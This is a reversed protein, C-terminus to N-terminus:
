INKLFDMFQKKGEEKIKCVSCVKDDTKTYFEKGCNECISRKAEFVKQPKEILTAPTADDVKIAKRICATECEKCNICLQPNFFIVGKEQDKKILIAEMACIHECVGCLNCEDTITVKGSEKYVMNQKIGFNSDKLLRILISRKSKRKSKTFKKTLGTFIDRRSIVEKPLYPKDSLVRKIKLSPKVGTSLRLVVAKNVNYRFYKLTEKFKCKRCNGRKIVVKKGKLFWDLLLVDTIRSICSVKLKSVSKICGIDIESLGNTKQILAADDKEMTIASFKCASYCLGCKLCLKATIRPFPSFFVADVPCIDGCDRCHTKSFTYRICSSLEIHIEGCNVFDDIM